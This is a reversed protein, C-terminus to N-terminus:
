SDLTEYQVERGNLQPTHQNMRRRRCYLLLVSLCVALILGAVGSSIGIVLGTSLQGEDKKATVDSDMVERETRTEFMCLTGYDNPSRLIDLHLCVYTVNAHADFTERRADLMNPVIFPTKLQFAAVGRLRVACTGFSGPRNRKTDEELEGYACQAEEVAATGAASTVNTGGVYIFNLDLWKVAAEAMVSFISVDRPDRVPPQQAGHVIELGLTSNSRNCPLGNLSFSSAPIVVAGSPQVLPGQTPPEYHLTVRRKNPEKGLENCIRPGFSEINVAQFPKSYLERLTPTAASAVLALNVYSLIWVAVHGLVCCRFHMSRFSLQRLPGRPSLQRQSFSTAILLVM